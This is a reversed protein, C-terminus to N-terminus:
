DKPLSEVFSVLKEWDRKASGVHSYIVKGSPDLVFTAPMGQPRYHEAIRSDQDWLVPVTLELSEVLRDRGERTSDVSVVIVKLEPNSKALTQLRPM